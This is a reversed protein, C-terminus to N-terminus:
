IFIEKKSLEERDIAYFYVLVNDIIM